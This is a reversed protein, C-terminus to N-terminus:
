ATFSIFGRIRECKRRLRLIDDGGSIDLQAQFCSIQTGTRDESVRAGHRIIGIGMGSIIGCIENVVGVRDKVKIKVTLKM